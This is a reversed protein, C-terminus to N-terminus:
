CLAESGGGLWSFFSAVVICTGLGQRLFRNMGPRFTLGALRVKVNRLVSLYEGEEQFITTFSICSPSWLLPPM